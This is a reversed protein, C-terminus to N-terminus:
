APSSNSDFCQVCRGNRYYVVFRWYFCVGSVAMQWTFRIVPLHGTTGKNEEEESLKKVQADDWALWIMHCLVVLNKEFSVDDDNDRALGPTSRLRKWSSGGDDKVKAADARQTWDTTSRSFTPKWPGYGPTVHVDQSTGGTRSNSMHWCVVSICYLHCFLLDIAGECCCEKTQEADWSSINEASRSTPPFPKAQGSNSTNWCV